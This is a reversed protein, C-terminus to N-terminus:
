AANLEAKDIDRTIKRALNQTAPDDALEAAATRVRALRLKRAAKQAAQTDAVIREVDKSHMVSAEPDISAAADSTYGSTSALFYDTTAIPKSEFLVRWKGPEVQEVETATALIRGRPRALPEGEERKDRWRIERVGGVSVGCGISARGEVSEGDSLNRITARVTRARRFIEIKGSVRLATYQEHTVIM